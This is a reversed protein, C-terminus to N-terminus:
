ILKGAMNLRPHFLLIEGILCHLMVLFLLQIEM